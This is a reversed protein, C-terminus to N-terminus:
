GCTAGSAQWTEPDVMATPAFAEAPFPRGSRLKDYMTQVALAGVERGSISLAARMAFRQGHEGGQWDRCALYGGLGVGILDAEPVGAARLAALGGEVNEDNCGWVVWHEPNGSEAATTAAVASRAGDPTNDTSVNLTRVQGADQLFALKAADIRERCVSLDMRAAAVIRTDAAKWGAKRYEVAARRGVAEGMQSGSFGVRPVLKQRACVAPDGLDACIQDDSALLDIRADHALRVLQPGLAPDPVAVVVGRAGRAAATRVADITRAADTGVDVVELDIGLEAARARAGAAEDRFYQQDGQKQIYAVSIRGTRGTEPGQTTCAGLTAIAALVAVAGSPKSPLPLRSM